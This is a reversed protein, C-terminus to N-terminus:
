SSKFHESQPLSAGLARFHVADAQLKIMQSRHLRYPTDHQDLFAAGYQVIEFM